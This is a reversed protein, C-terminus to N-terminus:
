QSKPDSKNVIDRKFNWDQPKVYIKLSLDKKRRKIILRICVTHSGDQNLHGTRLFIKVTNM